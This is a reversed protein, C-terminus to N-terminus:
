IWKDPSPTLLVGDHGVGEIALLRRHVMDPLSQQKDVLDLLDTYKMGWRDLVERFEKAAADARRNAAEEAAMDEAEYRQRMEEIDITGAEVAECFEMAAEMTRFRDPERTGFIPGEGSFYIDVTYRGAPRRAASIPQIGTRMGRIIYTRKGAKARFSDKSGRIKKFEM